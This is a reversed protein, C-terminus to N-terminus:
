CTEGFGEMLGGISGDVGVLAYVLGELVRFKQRREAFRIREFISVRDFKAAHEEVNQLCRQV